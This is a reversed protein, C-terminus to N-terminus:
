RGIEVREVRLVDEVIKNVNLSPDSVLEPEPMLAVKKGAQKAWDLYDPTSLQAANALALAGVTRGALQKFLESSEPQHLKLAALLKRVPRLDHNLQADGLSKLFGPWNMDVKTGSPSTEIAKILRDESAVAQQNKSDEPKTITAINGQSNRVEYAIVHGKSNIIQNVIPHVEFSHPGNSTVLYDLSAFKYEGSKPISEDKRFIPGLFDNDAGAVMSFLMLVILILHKM